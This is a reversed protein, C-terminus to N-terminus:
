LLRDPDESNFPIVSRLPARPTGNAQTAVAAMHASQGDSAVAPAPVDAPAAAPPAAPTAVPAAAHDVSPSDPERAREEQARKYASHKEREATKAQHEAIEKRKLFRQVVIATTGGVAVHQPKLEIHAPLMDDVTLVISGYLQQPDLIPKIGADTCSQTLLTLVNLWQQAIQTVTAERGISAGGDGGKYKDQWRENRKGGSPPEERGERAGVRPPAPLPPAKPPPPPPPLDIKPAVDAPPEPAADPLEDPEDDAADPEEDTAPAAPDLDATGPKKVSEEYLALWERDEDDLPKGAKINKRLRYARRQELRRPDKKRAM